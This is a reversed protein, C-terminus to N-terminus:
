RHIWASIRERVVLRVVGVGTHRSETTVELGTKVPLTTLNLLFTDM